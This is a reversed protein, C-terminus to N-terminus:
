PAAQACIAYVVLGTNVTDSPNYATVSWSSSSNPYNRSIWLPSDIPDPRTNYYGGGLVSLGAPCNVVVTNQVRANLGLNGTVTTLGAVGTGASGPPGMPGEPGMPGQPGIAGTDGKPGQIGQLGQPGTQNWIFAADNRGACGTATRSSLPFAGPAPYGNAPDDIRYVTGTKDAAYCAKYIPPTTQARLPLALGLLMAASGIARVRSSQLNSILTPKPFLM